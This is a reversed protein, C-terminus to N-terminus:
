RCSLKVGPPPWYRRYLCDFAVQFRGTLQGKAIHAYYKSLTSGDVHATLLIRTMRMPAEAM